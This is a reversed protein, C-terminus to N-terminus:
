LDRIKRENEEKKKLYVSRKNIIKERNRKADEMLRENQELKHQFNKLNTESEKASERVTDM